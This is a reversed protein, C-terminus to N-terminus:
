YRQINSDKYRQGGRPDLPALCGTLVISTIVLIIFLKKM